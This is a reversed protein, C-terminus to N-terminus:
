ITKLFDLIRAARKDWTYRVVDTRAHEALASALKTDAALRRMAEGLVQPNGPPVILANSDNLAERITPLDSAIIPRGSAMYEFMKVPSMHNRYHPKDPFPMLLMDAARQYHALMAQSVHGILTVREAMGAKETDRRYRVLDPESGGVCLLSIDGAYPLAMIADTIGKEEGMTTFNGTYLAITGKEPLQLSKRADERSDDLSFIRLDVGSPAVLILHEPFGHAVFARKLAESIVVLAHTRRCAFFFLRRYRPILHCEYVVSFGLLALLCHSYDRTYVLASRSKFLLTGAISLFFSCSQIWFATKGSSWASLDISPLKRVEFLEPIHYFSFLSSKIPTARRPLLLHVQAGLLAFSECSKAIALGHAKETPMRANALFFINM